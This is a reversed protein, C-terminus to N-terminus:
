YFLVENIAIFKLLEEVKLMPIEWHGAFPYIYYQARVTFEPTYVESEPVDFYGVFDRRIKRRERRHRRPRLFEPTRLLRFM